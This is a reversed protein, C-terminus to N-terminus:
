HNERPPCPRKGNLIDLAIEEEVGWLMMGERIIADEAATQEASGPAAAAAQDLLHCSIGYFSLRNVARVQQVSSLGMLAMQIVKSTETHM